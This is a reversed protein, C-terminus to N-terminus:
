RREISRVYAVEYKERHPLVLWFFTFVVRNKPYHPEMIEFIGISYKYLHVRGECM